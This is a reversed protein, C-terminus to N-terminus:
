RSPPTLMFLEVSSLTIQKAGRAAAQCTWRLQAARLGTSRRPHGIQDVTGVGVTRGRSTVNLWRPERSHLGGDATALPQAEILYRSVLQGTHYVDESSRIANWAGTGAPIPILLPSAGDDGCSVTVNERLLSAVPASFSAKLAMGFERAPRVWAAPIQGTVSPPLNVARRKWGLYKKFLVHTVYTFRLGLLAVCIVCCATTLLPRDRALLLDAIPVCSAPHPRVSGAVAWGWV